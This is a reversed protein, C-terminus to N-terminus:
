FKVLFFFLLQLNSYFYSVYMCAGMKKLIHVDIKRRKRGGGGGGGRKKTYLKTGMQGHM